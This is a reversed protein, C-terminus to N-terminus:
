TLFNVLDKYSKTNLIDKKEAWSKRAVAVGLEMYNLELASHSDTDVSLTCGRKVAEFAKEDGLDMRNAHGDIELITGTEKAKQIVNDLDFGYGSRELLLRGTPHAIIDVYENEIAGIIRKTIKEDDDKFGSHISALVIEFDKLESDPLDM